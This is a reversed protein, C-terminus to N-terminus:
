CRIGGKLSAIGFYVGGADGLGGRGAGGGRLNQIFFESRRCDASFSAGYFAQRQGCRLFVKFSFHCQFKFLSLLKLYFLNETM